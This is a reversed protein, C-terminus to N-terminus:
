DGVSLFEVGFTSYRRLFADILGRQYRIEISNVSDRYLTSMAGGSLDFVYVFHTGDSREVWIKRGQV